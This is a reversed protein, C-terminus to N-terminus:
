HPQKIKTLCYRFEGNKSEKFKSYYKWKTPYVGCLKIPKKRDKTTGKCAHTVWDMIGTSVNNQNLSSKKNTSGRNNEKWYLDDNTLLIAFGYKYKNKSFKEIRQIDKLYDYRGNNQAGHNKLCYDGDKRKIILKKTKYKLEIPYCKNDLEVFIDIHESEKSDPCYELIINANKHYEQIEWAIAFQFDKESFFVKRKVKLNNIIKSINM